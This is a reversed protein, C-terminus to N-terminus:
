KVNELSMLMKQRKCQSLDEMQFLTTFVGWNIMFWGCLDKTESLSSEHLELFM